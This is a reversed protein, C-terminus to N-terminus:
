LLTECNRCFRSEDYEERTHKRRCKRCTLSTRRVKKGESTTALPKLMRRSREREHVRKWEQINRKRRGM